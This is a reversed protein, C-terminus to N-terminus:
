QAAGAQHWAAASHLDSSVNKALQGPKARSPKIRGSAVPGDPARWFWGVLATLGMRRSAVELGNLVAAITQYDREWAHLAHLAGPSGGPGNAAKHWEDCVDSASIEDLHQRPEAEARQSAEASAEAQASAPQSQSVHQSKASLKKRARSERQYHANAATREAASRMRRFTGHNMLHWGRDIVEIRRGDFDKSRSHKDPKKFLELANECQELSVRAADALGPLSAWVCGHQDALALMTVWVLRVHDPERWITSHIISGFLKTYTETM